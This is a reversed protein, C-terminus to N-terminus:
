RLTRVLLCVESFIDEIIGYSARDLDRRHQKWFDQLLLLFLSVFLEQMVEGCVLGSM